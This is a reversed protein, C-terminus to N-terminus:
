NRYTFGAEPTAFIQAGPVSSIPNILYAREGDLSLIVLPSPLEVKTSLDQFLQDIRMASEGDQWTYAAMVALVYVPESGEIVKRILFAANLGRITQLQAQLKQLRTQDLDHPLFQDNRSFKTAQLNLKLAKDYYEAARNSFTEALEENGQQVYFDSILECAQAAVEPSSEFTKELYQIGDANGQELLFSGLSFNAAVHDPAENLLAKIAPVAAARDEIETLAIAREWQEDVTLARTKAQEDLESLRKRTTKIEEHRESWFQAIRERWLRNMSPEFDEPLQQLYRSAASENLEDAKVIEEVLSKL